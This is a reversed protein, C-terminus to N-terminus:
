EDPSGAAPAPQRSGVAMVACMTSTPGLAIRRNHQPPSAITSLSISLAARSLISSGTVRTSKRGTATSDNHRVTSPDTSQPIPSVAVTTWGDHHAGARTSRTLAAECTRAPSTTIRGRDHSRLWTDGDSHRCAVTTTSIASQKTTIVPAVTTASVRRLSWCHTASATTREMRLIADSVVSVTAISAGLVTFPAPASAAIIASPSRSRPPIVAICTSSERNLSSAVAIMGPSLLAHSEFQASAALDSWRRRQVSASTTSSILATSPLSRM